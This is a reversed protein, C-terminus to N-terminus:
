FDLTNMYEKIERMTDYPKKIHRFLFQNSHHMGTAIVPSAPSGFKIDGTNPKMLKDLVGVWVITANLSRFELSKYDVGIIGARIMVRKNSYGYFSYKYRFVGAVISLTFIIVFIGATAAFSIVFALGLKDPNVALAILALLVLLHVWVAGWFTKIIWGLWFRAKDPKYVSVIKEGNEIIPEFINQM